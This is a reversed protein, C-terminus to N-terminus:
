LGICLALADIVASLEPASAEGLRRLFRATDFSKVQSCDATSEKSLGNQASPHFTVYYAKTHHHSKHDRFPVVIRTALPMLGRASVVLAPRQKQIEAGVQPAFNVLWIEGRQPSLVNM